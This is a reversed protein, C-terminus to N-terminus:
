PEETGRAEALRKTAGLLRRTALVHIRTGIVLARYGGGKLGPFAARTEARLLTRGGDEADLRFILAYDSFRHAGALALEEAPRAREVHFGPLASGTTLPRPGSAETDVCGLLRAFRTTTGSGSSNGMVRQLAEWTTAANAGISVRHEDIHPLRDSPVPM